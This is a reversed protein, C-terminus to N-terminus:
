TVACGEGTAGTAGGGTAVIVDALKPAGALAGAPATGAARQHNTVSSEPEVPCVTM